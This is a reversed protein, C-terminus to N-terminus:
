PNWGIRYEGGKEGCNEKMAGGVFFATGLPVPLSALRSSRSCGLFRSQTWRWRIRNGGHILLMRESIGDSIGLLLVFLRLSIRSYRRESCILCIM